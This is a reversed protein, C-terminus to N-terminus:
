RSRRVGAEAAAAADQGAQQEFQEAQEDLGVWRLTEATTAAASECASVM